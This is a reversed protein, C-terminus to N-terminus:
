RTACPVADHERRWTSVAKGAQRMRAHEVGLKQAVETGVISSFRAREARRKGVNRTPSQQNHCDLM